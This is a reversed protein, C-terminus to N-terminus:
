SSPLYRDLVTRDGQVAMLYAQDGEMWAVTAWEGQVAYAREGAGPTKKLAERNVVFLHLLKGEGRKFCILAVDHGHFHLTRCGAPKMQQLTAPFNIPSPAGEKGLFENVRPFESTELQLPPDTKVFSVMEERYDALSAEPQFFGRQSSFFVALIVVAAALLAMGRAWGSRVPALSERPRLLRAKLGAPVPADQLKRAIIRDLEKEQAWWEALGPDAEAQQRAEAFRAVACEDEGERYISLTERFSRDAM